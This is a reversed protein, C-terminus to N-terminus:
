QADDILYREGVERIKNPSGNSALRSRVAKMLGYILRAAEARMESFRGYSAHDILEVRHMFHLFYEVEALSSRAISLFQLFEKKSSRTYGESINAPVSTAAKLLQASLWRLDPPLRRGVKFLEVALDDAVRWARLNAPGVSPGQRM